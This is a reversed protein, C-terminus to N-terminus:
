DFRDQFLELSLGEEGLKVYSPPVVVDSNLFAIFPFDCEFGWFSQKFWLYHEKPQGVGWGGELSGHVAHESFHLHAVWILQEDVHVVDEDGGVVIQCAVSLDDV